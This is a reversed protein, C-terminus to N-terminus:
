RAFHAATAIASFHDIVQTRREDGGLRGFVGDLLFSASLMRMSRASCFDECSVRLDCLEESSVQWGNIVCCCEDRKLENGSHENCAM